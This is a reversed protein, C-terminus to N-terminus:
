EEGNVIRKTAQSATFRLVQKDDVWIKEKTKPNIGNHGKIISVHFKGFNTVVPEKVCERALSECFDNYFKETAVKTIKSESFHECLKEYLFDKVELKTM